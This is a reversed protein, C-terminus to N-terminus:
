NTHILPAIPTIENIARFINIHYICSVLELHRTIVRFDAQLQKIDLHPPVTIEGIHTVVTSPTTQDHEEFSVSWDEINIDRDALFTTVAKLVGPSDIGNLTVVYREGVANGRPIESPAYPSVVFDAGPESFAAELCAQITGLTTDAGPFSATLLVTFYGAQVTQNIADINGNLSGIAISIDRLVGARDPVLLSIVYRNARNKHNSDNSM